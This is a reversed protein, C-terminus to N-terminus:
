WYRVWNEANKVFVDIIKSKEWRWNITSLEELWWMVFAVLSYMTRLAEYNGLPVRTKHAAANRYRILENLNNRIILPFIEINSGRQQLDKLAHTNCTRETKLAGILSRLIILMRKVDETTNEGASSLANAIEPYFAGFDAPQPVDKKYLSRIESHLTDYM